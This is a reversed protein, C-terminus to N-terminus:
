HLVKVLRKFQVAQKIPVHLHKPFNVVSRHNIIKRIPIKGENKLKIIGYDMFIREFEKPHFEYSLINAKGKFRSSFNLSLKTKNKIFLITIYNVKAVKGNVDSTKNELNKYFLNIM